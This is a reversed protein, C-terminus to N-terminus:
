LFLEVQRTDRGIFVRPTYSLSINYTSVINILIFCLDQNNSANALKTALGEWSSELMEGLPDILKVGNDDQPNHSATIMLGVAASKLYMSRLAVLMGM